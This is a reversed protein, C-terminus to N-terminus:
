RSENIIELQPAARKYVKNGSAVYYITLGGLESFRGKEIILGIDKKSIGGWVSAVFTVLDGVKV